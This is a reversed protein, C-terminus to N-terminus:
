DDDSERGFTIPGDNDDSDVWDAASEDESRWRALAAELGEPENFKHSIDDDHRNPMRLGTDGQYRELAAEVLELQFDEAAFEGAIEAITDLQGDSFESTDYGWDELQQRTISWCIFEPDDPPYKEVLKEIILSRVKLIDDEFMEVGEEDAFTETCADLDIAETFIYSAIRSALEDLMGPTLRPINNM